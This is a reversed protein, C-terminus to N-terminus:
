AFIEKITDPSATGLNRVAITYDLFDSQEPGSLDAFRPITRYLLDESGRVYAIITSIRQQGDVLLEERWTEGPERKGAAIFVEPFPYGKLITEIFKEKDANNWVLRRQFTPRIVLRGGPGGTALSVMEGVSRTTAQNNSM